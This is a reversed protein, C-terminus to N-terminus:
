FNSSAWRFARPSFFSFFDEDEAQTAYFALDEETRTFAPLLSQTCKALNLSFRIVLLAESQLIWLGRQGKQSVFIWHSRHTCREKYYRHTVPIDWAVRNGNLLVKCKLVNAKNKFFENVWFMIWTIVRMVQTKTWIEMWQPFLLIQMTLTGGNIPLWMSLTQLSNQRMVM